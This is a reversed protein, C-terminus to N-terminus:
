CVIFGTSRTAMHCLYDTQKSSDFAAEPLYNLCRSFGLVALLVFKYKKRCMKTEDM